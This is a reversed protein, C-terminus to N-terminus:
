PLRVAKLNLEISQSEALTVRTALARLRALTEPEDDLVSFDLGAIAVVDYTGPEVFMARYRGDQGTMGRPRALRGHPGPPAPAVTGAEAVTVIAVQSAPRGADDHVTGSLTAFDRAVEIEVGAIEGDQGTDLGDRTVDRGNVLVARVRWPLGVTATVISRGEPGTTTVTASTAPVPPPPPTAIGGLISGVVGGPVPATTGGVVGGVIGVATGYVPDGPLRGGHVMFSVRGRLGTLEFTGDDALTGTRVAFQTPDIATTQVRVNSLDEPATPIFRVRGRVTAGDTLRVVLGELSAGVEVDIEAMPPQPQDSTWRGGPVQARAVLTYRGAPVRPIEFGGGRVSTGFSSFLPIEPAARDGPRLSVTAQELKRGQPDLVVGSVSYLDVIPVSADATTEAASTVTVTRASALDTVGPHLVTPPGQTAGSPPAATPPQWSAPPRVSVYYEGPALGYLRFAGRDDTFDPFGNTSVTQRGFSRGLRIAQVQARVMPDGDAGFVRGVIVGARVLVIEVGEILDETRPHIARQGERQGNRGVYGTRSALLPMGTMGPVDRIEFRGQADTTVAAPSAMMGLRVSAGAIPAGTDDVVRGRVVATGLNSPMADRTRVDRPPPVVQGPKPATPPVIQQAAASAAVAPQLALALLLVRHVVFSAVRPM